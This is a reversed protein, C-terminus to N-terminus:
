GNIVEELRLDTVADEALKEIKYLAEFLLWSQKTIEPKGTKGDVMEISVIHYETLHKPKRDAKMLGYLRATKKM